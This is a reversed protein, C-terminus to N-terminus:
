ENPLREQLLENTRTLLDYDTGFERHFRKSSLALSPGASAETEASTQATWPVGRHHWQCLPITFQHGQRRGGSLLHHVEAPATIGWHICAICGIERLAEFRARDAKLIPATRGVM